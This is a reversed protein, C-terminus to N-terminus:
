EYIALGGDWGCTAVASPHSPHFEAAMVPGGHVGHLTRRVHATSWDYIVVRGDASGTACLSGDPSLSCQLRYGGVSHSEFRQARSLSTLLQFIRDDLGSFRERVLFLIFFYHPLETSSKQENQVTAGDCLDCHLGCQVSRCIESWQSACACM